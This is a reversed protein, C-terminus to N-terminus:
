KELHKLAETTAAQAERMKTLGEQLAENDVKAQQRDAEREAKLELILAKLDADASSKDARMDQRMGSIETLLAKHSDWAFYYSGALITAAALALQWGEVNITRIAVSNEHELDTDSETEVHDTYVGSGPSLSYSDSEKPASLSASNLLNILTAHSRERIIGTNQRMQRTPTRSAAATLVTLSRASEWATSSIRHADTFPLALPNLMQSM